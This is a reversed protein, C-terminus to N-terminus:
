FCYINGKAYLEIDKLNPAQKYFLNLPDELSSGTLDFIKIQNNNDIQEDWGNSSRSVKPAYKEECVISVDNVSAMSSQKDAM